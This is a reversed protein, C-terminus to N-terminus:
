TLKGSEALALMAKCNAEPLKPWADMIRALASDILHSKAAPAGAKAGGEASLATKELSNATPEIRM